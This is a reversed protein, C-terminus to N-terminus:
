KVYPWGHFMPVYSFGKIMILLATWDISLERTPITITYTSLCSHGYLVSMFCFFVQSQSSKQGKITQNASREKSAWFSQLQLKGSKSARNDWFGRHSISPLGSQLQVSQPFQRRWCRRPCRSRRKSSSMKRRRSKEERRSCCHWQFEPLSSGWSECLLLM